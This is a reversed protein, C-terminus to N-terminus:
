CRHRRRHLQFAQRAAQLRDTLDTAIKAKARVLKLPGTELARVYDGNAKNSDRIALLYAHLLREAASCELTAMIRHDLGIM